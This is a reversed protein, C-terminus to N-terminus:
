MLQLFPSSAWTYCSLQQLGRFLTAESQRSERGRPGLSRIGAGGWGARNDSWGVQGFASGATWHCPDLEEPLRPAIQPFRVLRPAHQRQGGGLSQQILGALVAAEEVTRHLHTQETFQNNITHILINSLYEIERCFIYKSSCLITVIAYSLRIKQSTTGTRCFSCM